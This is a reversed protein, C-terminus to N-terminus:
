DDKTEIARRSLTIHPKWRPLSATRINVQQSFITERQYAVTFTGRTAAPELQRWFALEWPTVSAVADGPAGIQDEPPEFVIVHMPHSTVVTGPKRPLSWIVQEWSLAKLSAETARFVVRRPTLRVEDPDVSRVDIPAEYPEEGMTSTANLAWRNRPYTAVESM